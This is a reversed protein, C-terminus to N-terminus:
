HVGIPGRNHRSFFERVIHSIVGNYSRDSRAGYRIVSQDLATDLWITRHVRDRKFQSEIPDYEPIEGDPPVNKSNQM